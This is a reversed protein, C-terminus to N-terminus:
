SLNFIQIIMTNYSDYRPLVYKFLNIHDILTEYDNGNSDNDNTASEWTTWQYTPSRCRSDIIDETM